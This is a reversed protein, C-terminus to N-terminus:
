YVLMGTSKPVLWCVVHVLALLGPDRGNHSTVNCTTATYLGLELKLNWIKLTCTHSNLCSERQAESELRLFPTLVGYLVKLLALCIFM